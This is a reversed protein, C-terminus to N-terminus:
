EFPALKKAKEAEVKGALHIGLGMAGITAILGVIIEGVSESAGDLISAVVALPIEGVGGLFFGVIAGVLGWASYVILFCYLWTYIGFPISCALLGYASVQRTRRFVALPLLVIVSLVFLAVVFRTAHQLVAAVIHVNGKVLIVTVVAAALALSVGLLTVGFGKLTNM